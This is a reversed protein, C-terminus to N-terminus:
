LRCDCKAHHSVLIHVNILCVNQSLQTYICYKLCSNEDIKYSFEKFNLLVLRGEIVQLLMQCPWVDFYTNQNSVCETFTLHLYTNGFM